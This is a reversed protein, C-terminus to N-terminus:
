TKAAFITKVVAWALRGPDDAMGDGFKVVGALKATKQAGNSIDGFELPGRFLPGNFVVRKTRSKAKGRMAHREDQGGSTEKLHVTKQALHEPVALRLQEM